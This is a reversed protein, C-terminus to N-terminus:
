WRGRYTRYYTMLAKRVLESKTKDSEVLMHDIAAQEDPGIRTDLRISYGDGKKPRGRGRKVESDKDFTSM